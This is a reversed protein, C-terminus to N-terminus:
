HHFENESTPAISLELIYTIWVKWHWLNTKCCRNSFKWFLVAKCTWLFNSISLRGYGYRDCEFIISAEACFSRAQVESLKIIRNLTQANLLNEYLHLLRAIIRSSFSEVYLFWYKPDNDFILEKLVDHPITNSKTKTIILFCLIKCCPFMRNIDQWAM